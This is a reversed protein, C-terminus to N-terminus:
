SNQFYAQAFLSFFYAKQLQNGRQGTVCIFWNTTAGTLSRKPSHKSDKPNKDQEKLFDLLHLYGGGETRLYTLNVLPKLQPRPMMAMGQCPLRKNEAPDGETRAEGGPSRNIMRVVAMVLLARRSSDVMSIFIHGCGLCVPPLPISSFVKTTRGLWPSATNGGAPSDSDNVRGPILAYLM